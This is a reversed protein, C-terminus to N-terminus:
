LYRFTLFTKRQITVYSSSNGLFIYFCNSLDVYVTNDSGNYLSILISPDYFPSDSFVFHADSKKSEKRLAGMHVNMTVIGDTLVSNENMGFRAWLEKARENKVKEDVKITIDGNYDDIFDKNIRKVEEPSISPTVKPSNIEKQKDEAANSTPLSAFDLKTGDAKKVILIDSKAIKQVTADKKDELQYFVSESSVEMNYVTMSKGDNTVILDQALAYSGAMCMATLAILRLAKM